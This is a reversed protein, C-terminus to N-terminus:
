CCATNCSQQCTAAPRCTVETVCSADCTVQNLSIGGAVRRITANDLSRLTERTLAVKRVSRKKM